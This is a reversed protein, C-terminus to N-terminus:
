ASKVGYLTFSSGSQFTGTFGLNKALTITSIAATSLWLSVSLSTGLSTTNSRSIVTKNTTTNSYNMFQTISVGDGLTTTFEATITCLGVSLTGGRSSSASTGNGSLHTYSYNTGSDSNLRFTLNGQSDFDVQSVLILDTYTQPISTFDVTAATGTLTQTQIPEYTKPM